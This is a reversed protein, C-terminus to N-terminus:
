DKKEKVKLKYKDDLFELLQKQNPLISGGSGLVWGLFSKNYKSLAMTQILYIPINREYAMLAEGYTGCPKDEENILCILFDSHRVYDLDGLMHQVEAQGTLSKLLTTKGRWILDMHHRVEDKKGTAIWDELKDHFEKTGYGTREKEMITPDFVYIPNNNEDFRCELEPRLRDRWVRGYDKDQTKEMAGILYTKLLPNIILKHLQEETM